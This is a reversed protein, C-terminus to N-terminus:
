AIEPAGAHEPPLLPLIPMAAGCGVWNCVCEIYEQTNNEGAPAYRAVMEAVTLKAYGPTRLLCALAAFGAADDPFVAFRGSNPEPGVAGHAAAFKGWEIDGPNHNRQPRSGDREFGEMRAIAQLLTLPKTM